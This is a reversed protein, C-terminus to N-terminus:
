NVNQEVNFFYCGVKIISYSNQTQTFRVLNLWAVDLYGSLCSFKAGAVYHIHLVKQSMCKVSSDLFYLTGKINLRKQTTYVYQLCEETASWMQWQCMPLLPASFGLSFRMDLIIGVTYWPLGFSHRAKCIDQRMHQQTFFPQILSEEWCHSLASEM